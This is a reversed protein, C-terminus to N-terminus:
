TISTSFGAITIESIHMVHDNVTRAHTKNVRHSALNKFLYTLGKIGQIYFSLLNQSLSAVSGNM